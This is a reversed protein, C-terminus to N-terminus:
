PFRWLHTQVMDAGASWGAPQGLVSVSAGVPNAMPQLRLTLAYNPGPMVAGSFTLAIDDTGGSPISLFVSYANVGFERVAGSFPVPRGALTASALNLPSYVSLWMFNSGPPQGSGQYSRIVGAPLGSAPASNALTLRVTSAVRGTRPDYVVHDAIREALYADIKNNGANAVTVALLDGGPGPSPFSGAIGVRQLLPTDGPHASWLMFRGQRALPNLVKWLAQPKPHDTVLLRKFATNMAALLVNHRGQQQDNGPFALYQEKLLTTVANSETLPAPLGAVPIPGTFRLLAALTYPDLALVGDIPQGGAAPYLQALVRGVTPLDPSYSADRVHAGPSFAGYRAVFDPVGALSVGGAPLARDLDGGAGSRGLSIRGNQANLIVYADIFGDLGRTEAPNMFVVLYRRPGYAGLMAPADRTALVGTDAATRAQALETALKDVEAALPGILWQSRITAVTRQTAAIRQDMATMPGNLSEIAALNVRVHQDTFNDFSLKPAESAALSTLREVSGTIDAVARRQEAVIPVLQASWTWWSSTLRHANALEATAQRLDSAASASQNGTVLSIAQHAEAEARRVDNRAALAAVAAPAATIAAAAVLGAVGLGTRIKWARSLRWWASALVPAVAVAAVLATLGHFGVAPWRFVVQIAVAGAVAGLVRNARRPLASGFAVGLAAFAPVWLLGRSMVVAVTALFLTAARGARAAAATVVGALVAAYASDVVHGGTPHTGTAAGAAASAM